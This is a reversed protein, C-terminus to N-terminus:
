LRVVEDASAAAKALLASADDGKGKTAGIEKSLANRQAQLEQTRVQIAKREAELTNFAAADLAIGRRALGAAVGALDNRFLNVDLM